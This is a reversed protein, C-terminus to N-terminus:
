KLVNVARLLIETVLEYLGSFHIGIIWYQRLEVGCVAGVALALWLGRKAGFLEFQEMRAALVTLQTFALLRLPADWMNAFRLNM